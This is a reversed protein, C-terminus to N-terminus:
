IWWYLWPVMILTTFSIVFTKAPVSIPGSRASASSSTEWLSSMLAVQDVCSTNFTCHIHAGAATIHCSGRERSVVWGSKSEPIGMLMKKRWSKKSSGQSELEWPYKLSDRACDNADYYRAACVCVCVSVSIFGLLGYRSFLCLPVVLEYQRSRPQAPILLAWKSAAAQSPGISPKPLFRSFEDMLWCCCGACARRRELPHLYFPLVCTAIYM